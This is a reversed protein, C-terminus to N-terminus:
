ALAQDNAALAEAHLKLRTLSKSKNFIAAASSPDLAIVKDFDEIATRYDGLDSRVTGRNNWSDANGPNLALAQSFRQLAEEPRGLAKLVIGYNYFTADSSTNLKLATQLCGEAEQYKKQTTLVIALINLSPLHRPEKRLLQRFSRVSDELKGQQFSQIARKFLDAPAAM